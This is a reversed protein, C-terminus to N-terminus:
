GSDPRRALPVLFLRGLSFILAGVGAIMFSQGRARPENVSNLVEERLAARRTEEWQDSAEFDEVQQQMRALDAQYAFEVALDVGGQDLPEYSIWLYGGYGILGFGVAAVLWLAISQRGIM